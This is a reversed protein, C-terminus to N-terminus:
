CDLMCDTAFRRHSLGLVYCSNFKKREFDGCQGVCQTLYKEEDKRWIYIKKNNGIVIQTEVSFIVKEWNEEETWGPKERCFKMRKERNVKSITTAKCVRRRKFGENFLRRRITRSSINQGYRENYRSTLDYLTQRRNKRVM